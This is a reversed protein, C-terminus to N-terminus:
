HVQASSARRCSSPCRYLVKRGRFPNLFNLMLNEANKYSYFVSKRPNFPNESIEEKKLQM